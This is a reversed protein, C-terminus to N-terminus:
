KKMVLDLLAKIRAPDPMGHKHALVIFGVFLVGGVILATNLLTLFGRIAPKVISEGMAEIVLCVSAVCERCVPIAEEGHRSAIGEIRGALELVCRGPKAAFREVMLGAVETAAGSKGQAHAETVCMLCILIGCIMIRTM